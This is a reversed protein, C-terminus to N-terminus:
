EHKCLVPYFFEVTNQVKSYRSLHFCEKNVRVWEVAAREEREEGEEEEEEEEEEEKEEEEEEEEVKEEM